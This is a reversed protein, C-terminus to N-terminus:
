FIPSHNPKPTPTPISPSPTNPGSSPTSKVLMPCRCKTTLTSSAKKMKSSPLWKTQFRRAFHFAMGFIGTFLALMIWLAPALTKFIELLWWLTAGFSLFGHLVGLRFSARLSTENLAIFLPIWAVPALFWWGIPPFVLVVLIASLLTLLIKRPM